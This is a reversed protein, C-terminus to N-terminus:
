MKLSAKSDGHSDHLQKGALTEYKRADRANM